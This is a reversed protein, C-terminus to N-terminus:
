FQGAFLFFTQQYTLLDFIWIVISRRGLLSFSKAWPCLIHATYCWGRDGRWGQQGRIPPNWSLPGMNHRSSPGQMDGCQQWREKRKVGPWRRLSSPPLPVMLVLYGKDLLIQEPIGEVATLSMQHLRSKQQWKKKQKNVNVIRYAHMNRFM